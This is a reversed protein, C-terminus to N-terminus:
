FEVINLQIYNFEQCDLLFTNYITKIVKEFLHVFTVKFTITEYFKKAKYVEGVLFFGWQPVIFINGWIVTNTVMLYVSKSPLPYLFKSLIKLFNKLHYFHFKLDAMLM